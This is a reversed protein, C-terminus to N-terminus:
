RDVDDAGEIDALLAQAAPTDIRRLIFAARRWKLMAAGSDVSGKVREAQARLEASPGAQLAEDLLPM